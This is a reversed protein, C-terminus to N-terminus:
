GDKIDLAAEIAKNKLLALNLWIYNRGGLFLAKSAATSVLSPYSVVISVEKEGM